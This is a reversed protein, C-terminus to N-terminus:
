SARRCTRREPNEIFTGDAQEFLPPPATQQGQNWNRWLRAHAPCLPYTACGEVYTEECGQVTCTRTREAVWKRRSESAKRSKVTREQSAQDARRVAREEVRKPAERQVSFGCRLCRVRQIKTNELYDVQADLYAPGGKCKPCHPM